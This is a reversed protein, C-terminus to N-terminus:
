RVRVKGDFKNRKFQGIYNIGNNFKYHGMGEFYGKAFDGDYINGDGDCLIGMGQYLDSFTIYIM